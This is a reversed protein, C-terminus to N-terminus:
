GAERLFLIELIIPWSRRRKLSADFAFEEREFSTTCGGVKIRRM